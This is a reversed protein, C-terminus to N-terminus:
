SHVHSAQHAEYIARELALRLATYDVSNQDEIDLVTDYADELLDVVYSM